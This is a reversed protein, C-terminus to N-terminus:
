GLNGPIKLEVCGRNLCVVIYLFKTFKRTFKRFTAKLNVRDTAIYM